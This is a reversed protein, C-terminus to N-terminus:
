ILRLIAPGIKRYKNILNWLELINSIISKDKELEWKDIYKGVLKDNIEDPIDVPIFAFRRMFAYSMEYLSAKDFTNMTAIIRWDDHVFYKYPEINDGDKPKGIIKIQNDNKIFPLTIDDGTLASFLAGFAKDIDARNIEDIILWKNIPKDEQTQFCRLFIGPEFVLENERSIKYGGTTDHTSWDSTATTM